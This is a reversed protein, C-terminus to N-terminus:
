VPALVKLNKSKSQWCSYLLVHLINKLDFLSIYLFIAQAQM